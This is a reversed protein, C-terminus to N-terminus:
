KVKRAAANLVIVFPLWLPATLAIWKLFFFQLFVIAPIITYYLWPQSFVSVDWLWLEYLTQLIQNM